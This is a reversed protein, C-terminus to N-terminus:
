DGRYGGCFFPIKPKKSMRWATWFAPNDKVELYQQYLQASIRTIHFNQEGKHCKTSHDIFYELPNDVSVKLHHCLTCFGLYAM